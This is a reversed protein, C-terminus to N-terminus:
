VTNWQFSIKKDLSWPFWLFECEGTNEVVLGELPQCCSPISALNGKFKIIASINVKNWLVSPLYKARIRFILPAGTHHPPTNRTLCKGKRSSVNAELAWNPSPSKQKNSSKWVSVNASIWISVNASVKKRSCILCKGERIGRFNQKLHFNGARRPLLKMAQVRFCLPERLRLTKQMRIACYRGSLACQRKWEIAGTELRLIKREPRMTEKVRFACYRGSLACQRKWESLAISEAWPANDRESQFRLPKREFRLTEQVRFACYRGNLACQRKWKPLTIAEAWPAIDRVSQFHFVKRQFRM